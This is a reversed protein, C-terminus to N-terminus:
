HKRRLAAAACRMSGASLAIRRGVITEVMNSFPRAIVRYALPGVRASVFRFLPDARNLYLVQPSDAAVTVLNSPTEM